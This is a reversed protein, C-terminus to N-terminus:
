ESSILSASDAVSPLVFQRLLEGAREASVAKSFHFGQAQTASDAEKLLASQEETEVGQAIVVVGMERAFTVIARMAAAHDSDIASEHIYSRSVKLHNV